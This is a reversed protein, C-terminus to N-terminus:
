AAEDRVFRVSKPAELGVRINRGTIRLIKIVIIGDIEISEGPKRSLVLRTIENPDLAEAQAENEPIGNLDSEGAVEETSANEDLNSIESRKIKMWRPAELLIQVRGGRTRTPTFRVGLEGVQTGSGLKRTLVLM